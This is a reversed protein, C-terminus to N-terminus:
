RKVSTAVLVTNRDSNLKFFFYSTNYKKSTRVHPKMSTKPKLKGQKDWLLLIRNIANQRIDRKFYDKHRCNFQVEEESWLSILKETEEESFTTKAKTSPSKGSSTAQVVVEDAM